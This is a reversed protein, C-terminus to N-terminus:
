VSSRQLTRGTLFGGDVSICQGNVYGAEESLLFAVVTSIDSPQGVRGSPVHTIFQDRYSPTVMGERVQILGPAVANVRIGQEGFEQALSKTLMVLGAKSASYAAAGPRASYAATSAINVVAGRSQTGLLHRVFAQTCFFSGKLNTDLVRDWLTEDMDLAPVNPYVGANNVLAVPSGLEQRVQEFVETISKISSVDMRYAKATDGDPALQSAVAQAEALDFDTIAVTYGRSHLLEAIAKGISRGAGTVLAVPRGSGNM